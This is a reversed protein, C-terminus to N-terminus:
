HTRHGLGNKVVLVVLGQGSFLERRELVGLKAFHEALDELGVGEILFLKGAEVEVGAAVGEFVEGEGGAALQFVM